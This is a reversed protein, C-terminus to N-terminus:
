GDSGKAGRGRLRRQIKEALDDLQADSKDRLPTGDPNQLAVVEVTKMGEQARCWFELARQNVEVAPIEKAGGKGDPIIQRERGVARDYLTQRVKASAKARGREQALQAAACDRIMQDYWTRSIGFYAAQEEEPLRIGSFTEILKIEADTWKRRPKRPM